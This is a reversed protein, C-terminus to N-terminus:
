NTSRYPCIFINKAFATPQTIVTDIRADGSRKNSYTWGKGGLRSWSKSVEGIFVGANLVAYSDEDTRKLTTTTRNM